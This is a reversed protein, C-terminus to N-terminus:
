QHALDFEESRLRLQGAAKGPLRQAQGSAFGDCSCRQQETSRMFAFNGFSGLFDNIKLLEITEARWFDTNPGHVNHV